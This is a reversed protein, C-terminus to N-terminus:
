FIGRFSLNYVFAVRVTLNSGPSGDVNRLCCKWLYHQADASTATNLWMSQQAVAYEGGLSGYALMSLKPKGTFRFPRLHSLVQRQTQQYRLLDDADGVVGADLVDEAILLEPVPSYFNPTNRNPDSTLQFEATVKNIRYQRFLAQFAASESVNKLSFLTSFPVQYVPLNYTNDLSPSGPVIPTTATSSPPLDFNFVGPSSINLVGITIDASRMDITFTNPQM